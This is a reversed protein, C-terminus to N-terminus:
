NPLIKIAKLARLFNQNFFTLPSADLKKVASIYHEYFSEPNKLGLEFIGNLEMKEAKRILNRNKSGLDQWLIEKKSDLAPVEIVFSDGTKIFEEPLRDGLPSQIGKLLVCDFSEKQAIKKLDQKLENFEEINELINPALIGYCSSLFNLGGFNKQRTLFSNGRLGLPILEVQSQRFLNKYAQILNLFSNEGLDM